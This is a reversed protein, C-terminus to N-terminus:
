AGDEEVLLDLKIRELGCSDEIKGYQRNMCDWEKWLNKPIGYRNCIYDWQVWMREPVRLYEPKRTRGERTLKQRVANVTSKGMGTVKMVQDITYGEKLLGKAEERKKRNIKAIDNM